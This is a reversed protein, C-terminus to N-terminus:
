EDPNAGVLSLCGLMVGLVLIVVISEIVVSRYYVAICTGILLAAVDWIMVKNFRKISM